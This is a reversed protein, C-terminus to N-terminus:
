AASSEKELFTRMLFKMIDSRNIVGVLKGDELVPVKKLHNDGLVRCVEALDADPSVGITAKTAIDQARMNLVAALKDDFADNLGVNTITNSIMIIPDVVTTTRTSLLRLIDGDSIFGVAKGSADVLPAASIGKEVFLAVAERVTATAPLSFVDTKMIQSIVSRRAIDTETEAHATKTERVFIVTLIFGVLCLCAATMFAMNVGHIGAHTADMSNLSAQTVITSISIIVATGMSGAVQRFTNSVSNGHNILRNELANMGWTGIPMNVLSLAFLRVTYIIAITLPSISDDLFMLAFTFLTLVGTGIIALRRPGRKDFLRGAILGMVGMTIAGPMLVLGSVTASFGRYTQLYIPLLIGGAMLAGQIIMTIITSIAFTRNSLVRLELMPTEMHLQRYFFLILAAIGVLGIVSGLVTVGNSGIDSLGYLLGGFGLTSLIVSAVDLTAAPNMGASKELMFAGLLTVILSLAAIAYFMIHWNANDVVFGAATPGFAPAFALIVGFIGMATGRREVPFMLLLVTGTLPMLIGEGAAQVLRGALLVAFNPGWGALVSGVTFVGMSVAFLLRTSFKDQLFATIPIMIANVLTFGTTLWQATAADISMEAMINPLAPSVVTSNLVAVFTGFVIIALTFLQKRTIGLSQTLSM